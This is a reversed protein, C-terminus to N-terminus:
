YKKTTNKIFLFTRLVSTPELVHQLFAQPAKVSLINGFFSLSVHESLTVKNSRNKLKSAINLPFGSASKDPKKLVEEVLEHIVKKKGEKLLGLILQERLWNPMYGYRFWPLRALQTLREPTLLKLKDGLYLTLPWRLEPYVACASFWYYGEQGLFNQLQKLLDSLEDAEPPERELWRYPFRHVLKPLPQATDDADVYPQWHHTELQEALAQLGKENAPLILFDANELLQEKYGWQNPTILTFLIRQSWASFQNIWPVIQGTFFEILGSGDSFILLRCQDYDEALEELTLTEWSNQEPHCHRPDTDFYYRHVIVGEEVLQNILTDVWQAQHDSFTIRDILVLYEPLQKVVATAPTFWGAACVTKELTTAIDLQNVDIDIHRHLQQAVRSLRMFQIIDKNPDQISYQNIDGSKPKRILFRQVRYQWWLHWSLWSVLALPILLTLWLWPQPTPNEEPPPTPKPGPSVTTTIPDEPLPPLDPPSPEPNEKPVEPPNEIPSPPQTSFTFYFAFGFVSVVVFVVFVWKWSKIKQSYSQTKSELHEVSNSKKELEYGEVQCVWQEFHTKFAQQEAPSHCLIPALLLEFQRLEAPLKDQLALSFVLEQVRVFQTVGIRYGASRQLYRVFSILQETLVEPSRHQPNM